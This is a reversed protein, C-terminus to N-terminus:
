SKPSPDGDPEEHCFWVTATANVTSINRAVLLPTVAISNRMGIIEYCGGVYVSDRPCPEDYTPVKGGVSPLEGYSLLDRM